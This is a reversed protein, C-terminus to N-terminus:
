QQWELTKTQWVAEDKVARSAQM